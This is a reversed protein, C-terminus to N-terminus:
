GNWYGYPIDWGVGYAGAPPRFIFHVSRTRPNFWFLAGPGVSSQLLLQGHYATIIGADPGAPGPVSITRRAGDRYQRVVSGTGRANEAQLYVRGSIQWADFYGQFLGHPLLAPTLPVPTGGNFPFSAEYPLYRGLRGCVM